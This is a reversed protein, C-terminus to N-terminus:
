ANLKKVPGQDMCAIVEALRDGGKKGSGDLLGFHKMLLELGKIKDTKVEIIYGTHEREKGGEENEVMEFVERYKVGSIARRTDEGMAHFPLVSGTEDETDGLDVMAVRKVENLVAIADIQAFDLQKQVLERVAREVRPARPISPLGARQAAEGRGVGPKIREAVYAAEGATLADREVKKNRKAHAARQIASGQKEDKRRM